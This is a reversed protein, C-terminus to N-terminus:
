IHQQTHQYVWRLFETVKNDDSFPDFETGRIQDALDPRTNYLGNFYAQGRRQEPHHVFYRYMIGFLRDYETVSGGKFDM